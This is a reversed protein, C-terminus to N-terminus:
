AFSALREKVPDQAARVPLPIVAASPQLAPKAERSTLQASATQRRPLSMPSFM